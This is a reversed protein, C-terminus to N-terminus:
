DKLNTRLSALGRHQLGKVAPVSKGVTLAVENLSLGALFRLEVVERQDTDMRELAKQVREFTVTRETIAEPTEGETPNEAIIELPVSIQNRNKRYNDIVLNRAIGYL